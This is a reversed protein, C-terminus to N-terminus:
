RAPLDWIPRAAETQAQARTLGIDALANADLRALARRQMYTGFMTSLAQAIRPRQFLPRTQALSRTTMTVEKRNTTRCPAKM